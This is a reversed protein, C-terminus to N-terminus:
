MLGLSWESSSSSREKLTATAQFFFCSFSFSPPLVAFGLTFGPFFRGFHTCFRSTVLIYLIYFYFSISRLIFAESVLVSVTCAQECAASRCTSFLSLPKSVQAM